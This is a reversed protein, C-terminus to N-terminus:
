LCFAPVVGYCNTIPSGSFQGAGNILSFEGGAVNRWYPSRLFNFENSNTAGAPAHGARTNLVLAYNASTSSINKDAFFAYQTGEKVFGTDTTGSLEVHSMLWLKNVATVTKSKSKTTGAIKTVTVIENTFKKNFSCYISGTSNNMDKFLQTTDWSTSTTDSNVQFGQPLSHTAMFTLASTGEVEENHAGVEVIRFEVFKNEDSAGTADTSSGNWATYLHYEDKVMLDKYEAITEADGAKIKAIDAKIEASSKFVNVNATVYADNAINASTETNGTTIKSSPAMWFVQADGDTAPAWNAYLTMDKTAKGTVFDWKSAKTCKPDTYWGELVLGESTGANETPDEILGNSKVTQSAVADNGRGQTDFNIECEMQGFAFCPVVGYKDSTYRTDNTYLGGNETIAYFGDGRDVKPSRIYWYNAAAKGAPSGGARTKYLNVLSAYAAKTVGREAFIQYQSGELTYGEDTMGYLEKASLLWMQNMSTSTTKSASGTTSAKEVSLIDSTFNAKFLKFIEGGSQMKTRLSADKWGGANSAYNNNITHATTLSSTAMFTVASGDGDHEGVQIIRFEVYDNNATGNGVKTYLHYEDSRMYERWENTVSGEDESTGAVRERVIATMDEEIELASKKVDWTESIFGPNLVNTKDASNATTMKWSRGLWFKQLDGDDAPIWHAYLTKTSEQVKEGLDWKNGPTCDPDTYWGELTLGEETGVKDNVDYIAKGHEVEVTFNGNARGGTDFTVQVKSSSFSFAPVIGVRANNTDTIWNGTTTIAVNARDNEYNNFSPTCTWWSTDRSTYPNYPTNGARTNRILCPDAPEVGSYTGNIGINKFYEYQKGIVFGKDYDKGNLETYSLIWLKNDSISTTVGDDVKACTTKKISTVEDTFGSNFKNFINGSYDNMRPQLESGAWGEKCDGKEAKSEIYNIRIAEPLSHTAQFTLTTPGEGDTDHSGVEIIRSEMFGNEESTESDDTTSGKWVTYLHYNDKTMYEKYENITAEDGTAIKDVDAQIEASTKKVNWAAKVYDGNPVDVDAGASDGETWVKTNGTTMSKAPALWYRDLEGNAVPVWNAYLTMNEDAKMTSFDFVTEEKCNSTTYWGQLELGDHTGAEVDTPKAVLGSEDAVKDEVKQGYMQNDFSVVVKWKAQLTINSTIPDKEFDFQNNWDVTGDVSVYWGDFTLNAISGDEHTITYTPDSPKTALNGEVIKQSDVKSGVGTEGEGRSTVFDVEFVSKINVEATTKAVNYNKIDNPTFTVAFKQSKGKTVDLKTSSSDWTFKGNTASPLKVESITQGDVGSLKSIATYKPDAKKIDFTITKTGSYNGTGKITVSGAGTGANINTGYTVTFDTGQKLGPITVTPKLQKGTYTMSTPSVKAKTFDIEQKTPTSGDDPSLSSYGYWGVGEARWGLRLLNNQEDESKTYNHTGTESYPNYQRLLPVAGDEDKDVGYWAVGEQKWGDNPLRNYEDSDTTYHHDGGSVYPNYLRYVKIDSVSPAIWEVGEYKWGGSVLSDKETTDKTYFHEGTWSNYLRHMEVRSTSSSGALVSADSKSNNPILSNPNPLSWDISAKVDGGVESDEQATAFSINSFLLVSVLVAIFLTIFPAKKPKSAWGSLISNECFLPVAVVLQASAPHITPMLGTEKSNQQSLM